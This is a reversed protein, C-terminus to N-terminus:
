RQLENILERIPSFSKRHIPTPGYDKIRRIHDVTGYGKNGAFDYRPFIIDFFEMLRDRLVKALISAAGIAHSLGDGGKIATQPIPLEPIPYGDVLIWDPMISLSTIARYMSLTVAYDIGWSDILFSDVYGIGASISHKLIEPFLELRKNPSLKKSDNIGPIYVGRKFIVAASAVPGALSGKGVEDIGCILTAEPPIWSEDSGTM